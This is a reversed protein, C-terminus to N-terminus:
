HAVNKSGREDGIRAEIRLLAEVVSTETLPTIADETGTRRTIKTERVYARPAAPVVEDTLTGVRLSVVGLAAVQVIVLRLDDVVELAREAPRCRRGGHEVEASLPDTVCPAKLHTLTTM